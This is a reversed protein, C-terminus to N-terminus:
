DLLNSRGKIFQTLLFNINNIENYKIRLLPYKNEYCFRNKIVDNQIRDLYEDVGGFRDVPKFHQVGDFEIFLYSMKGDPIRFDFRVLSGGIGRLKNFSQDHVYPIEYNDLFQKIKLEGKSSNVLPIYLPHHKTCYGNNINQKDCGIIKCKSYIGGHRICKGGTQAYKDCEIINCKNRKWGNHKQCKGKKGMSKNKCDPVICEVFPLHRSCFGNIKQQKDCNEMVCLANKYNGHEGCLHDKKAYKLCEEVKCKYYNM